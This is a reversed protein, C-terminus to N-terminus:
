LPEYLLLTYLMANEQLYVFRLVGFCFASSPAFLRIHTRACGFIYSSLLFIWTVMTESRSNLIQHYTHSKEKFRCYMQQLATHSTSDTQNRPTICHLLPFHLRCQPGSSRQSNTMLGTIITTWTETVILRQTNRSLAFMGSGLM